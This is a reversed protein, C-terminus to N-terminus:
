VSSITCVQSKTCLWVEAEEAQCLACERRDDSAVVAYQIELEVGAVERVAREIQPHMRNKLMESAFSNASGVVFKGEAYAAGSAESLWTEFAPKSVQSRLRELVTDWIKQASFMQEGHALHLLNWDPPPSPEAPRESPPAPAAERAVYGEGTTLVDRALRLVFAAVNRIGVTESVRGVIYDATRHDPPSGTLNAYDPLFGTLDDDPLDSLNAAAAHDKKEELSKEEHLSPTDPSSVPKKFDTVDDSMNGGASKSEQEEIEDFGTVDASLTRSDAVSDSMNRSVHKEDHAMDNEFGTLEGSLNRSDIVGDSLNRSSTLTARASRLIEVIQETTVGDALLEDVHQHVEAASFSPQEESVQPNSPQSQPSRTIDPLVGQDPHPHKVAPSDVRYRTTTGRGHATRGGGHEVKLLLGNKVLISLHNRYAGYSMDPVHENLFKQGRMWFEGHEDHAVMCIAVLVQRTRPMLCPHNLNKAWRSLDYGM